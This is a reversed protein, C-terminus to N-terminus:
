FYVHLKISILGALHHTVAGSLLGTPHLGCWVGRPVTDPCGKPSQSLPPVAMSPALRPGWAQAPAGWEALISTKFGYAVDWLHHVPSWHLCFEFETQPLM